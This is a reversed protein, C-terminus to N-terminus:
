FSKRRGSRRPGNTLSPNSEEEQDESEAAKLDEPDLQEVPPVLPPEVSNSQDDGSINIRPVTSFIFDEVEEPEDEEDQVMSELQEPSLDILDHINEPLEIPEYRAHHPIVRFAGVKDKLVTGDMEAIIYAGGRTRRIVVMPGRYRLYMKRDLNKEIATNRVQVLTGPKFDWDKITYKYKEEFVRAERRKNEDIRSKMNEVFSRHKSLAQARFGLLEERSLIRNPPNVLYTSEVIDFPLLPETGTAVFYPSCGLGRRATIRDAWLIPKLFYYWKSLDGACAKALAQRLDFHAREIKGNAQSNYPSIQIGRIGYKQELWRLMLKMQPANDSVVIEPCGWRCIIDEFFWEALSRANEVRLARAESWSSLSDRGHVIYRCGNSAPSMVMTDIHIKQFLSPTFTVTPPIRVLSRLRDQCAQCTKVYWEVDKELDPWWFRKELFDKTAYTGKHGLADHASHLLYMRKEPEVVLRLQDTSPKRHFLRGESDISFSLTKRDMEARQRKDLKAFQEANPDKLWARIEPLQQDLRNGGDSRHSIPYKHDPGWTANDPIATYQLFQSTLPMGSAELREKLFAHQIEEERAVQLDEAFEDEITECFYGTRPDIHDKFSEFPLPDDAEDAKFFRVNNSDDADEALDEETERRPTTWGGPPRRSLGDPGFTAGKVHILDFHFKRIDEIWRNITANPGSSPNELMGQIYSADTEVTLKRCGYLLYHTARLAVKLGYLERKSQSFRAERENYPISGFYNYYIKTQDVPDIQYIYFGTGMYSSDVALHTEWDYVIVRLAPANRVGDKLLDMAIVHEDKWEFPINATLKTLPSAKKAYNHIFMRLQGVTGLFARVQTKSSCPPWTLVTTAIRDEPKQGEYTCRHGVVVTEACCLFAKPGSFTGGCYRMRQIIRNVNQLHEWVFRRILPNEPITEYGGGPLEYRTGPGRIPVDDVYPITYEPIEDRMMYTVDDHFIPVSNTWGMPLKVLRHPGYPTQFTTLDRSSVDLPREDYGVYIDLLGGCARGAFHRAIDATAPPIGSHQITVKNLPELSHVLRLSTGDKKVVCFWKSRYSSCSPEYVGADIKDKIIKCVKEFIGPPIPINREVWPEHPIVPIKVPPFFDERFTGGESAEWAFGMEQLKMMHHVLKMEEDTLFGEAHNKEIIEKREQTYRIGPTFEPPHTPLDPLDALPDGYIHRRVRFEEPLDAKVPRVKVAVPKYKRSGFVSVPQDPLFVDNYACIHQDITENKLEWLKVRHMAAELDQTMSSLEADKTQDVQDPLDETNDYPRTLGHLDKWRVDKTMSQYFTEKLDEVTPDARFGEKWPNIVRNQQHDVGKNLYLSITEAIGPHSKEITPLCCQVYVDALEEDSFTGRKVQNSEIVVEEAQADWYGSLAIEVEGQDSSLDWLNNM